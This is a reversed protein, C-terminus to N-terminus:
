GRDRKRDAAPEPRPLRRAAHTTYSRASRREDNATAPEYVPKRAREAAASAAPAAERWLAVMQSAAEPSLEAFLDALEYVRAVSNGITPNVFLLVRQLAAAQMGLAKAAVVLAEGSSDQVIRDAIHPAIHLPARLLRAFESPNRQMAAAELRALREASAPAFTTEDAVVLNTLILRREDTNADFFLEILDDGEADGRRSALPLSALKRLVTEPAGPYASLTATITGRTLPDVADILGLALEVYQAEEEPSHSPKQVYLDTLVRLLTPRIEVGDRCALDVLSDLPSAPLKAM